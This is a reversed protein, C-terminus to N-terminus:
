CGTKFIDIKCSFLFLETASTDNHSIWLINLTDNQSLELVSTLIMTTSVSGKGIKAYSTEYDSGNKQLILLLKKDDDNSLLHGFNIKFMVFFYATPTASYTILGTSSNM